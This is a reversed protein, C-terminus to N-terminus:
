DTIAVARAPAGDSGAIKLPLCCFLFPWKPCAGLNTLNEICIINGALLLRHRTLAADDVPDLGPTDLGIGKCGLSLILDIAGRGLCPYGRFYAEEGWLRDWGTNFLLFDAERAASGHAEIADVTIEAGAPLGRCDIVLASGAFQGAPFAALTRGHPYVHAPPDIHTGTHTYIKLAAQRFGSEEYSDAAALEPPLDGPFVPMGESITHTLEIVQM